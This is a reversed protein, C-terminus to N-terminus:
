QRWYLLAIGFWRGATFVALVYFAARWPNSKLWDRM